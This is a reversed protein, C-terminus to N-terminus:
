AAKKRQGANFRDRCAQCRACDPSDGKCDICLGAARLEQYRAKLYAANDYVAM